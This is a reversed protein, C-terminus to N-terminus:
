DKKRPYVIGVIIPTGYKFHTGIIFYADKLSLMKQKVKQFVEEETSYGPKGDSQHQKCNRYLQGVEWDECMIRHPKPCHESCYFEYGFIKDPIDLRVASKGLLTRQEKQGLYKDYNKKDDQFFDLIKPKIVGLSVETQNKQALDELSTLREDLMKKVANWKEEEESRITEYKVKRSEPRHDSQSTSQLEYSIWCKKRFGTGHAKWFFEWPVPYIRRWLGADTIGAVCVLEEYKRSLVPSAKALVLMREKNVDATM